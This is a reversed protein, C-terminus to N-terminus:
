GSSWAASRRALDDRAPQRPDADLVDANSSTAGASTRIRRLHALHLRRVPRHMPVTSGSTSASRRSRARADAPPRRAAGGPRHVPLRQLRPVHRRQRPDAPAGHWALRRVIYRAMARDIRPRADPRGRAAPRGSSQSHDEADRSSAVHLQLDWTTSYANQVGSCTRRPSSRGPLGLHVPYRAGAGVITSTSTPGRRPASPRIPSAGQRRRDATNVEPVDLEPWNSNGAAPPHERRQVDPRADDARRRLGAALRREPLRAREADPVNCFKTFM